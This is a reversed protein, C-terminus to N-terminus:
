HQAMLARLWDEAIIEDILRARTARIIHGAFADAYHEAIHKPVYLTICTAADAWAVHHAYRTGQDAVGNHLEICMTSTDLEALRTRGPVFNPGALVINAKALILRTHATEYEADHPADTAEVAIDARISGPAVAYLLRDGERRPDLRPPKRFHRRRPLRHAPKAVGYLPHLKAM